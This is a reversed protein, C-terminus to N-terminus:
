MTNIKGYTVEETEGAEAFYLRHRFNYYTAASDNNQKEVETFNFIIGVKSNGEVSSLLHILPKNETSLIKEKTLSGEM